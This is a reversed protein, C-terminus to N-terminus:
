VLSARLPQRQAELACKVATTSQAPWLAAVAGSCVSCLLVLRDSSLGLRPLRACLGPACVGSSPLLAARYLSIPVEAVVEEDISTASAVTDAQMVALYRPLHVTFWPHQRCLTFAVLERVLRLLSAFM